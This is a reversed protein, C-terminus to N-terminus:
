WGTADKKAVILNFMSNKLFVRSIFFDGRHRLESSASTQPLKLKPRTRSISFNVSHQPSCGQQEETKGDGLIVHNRSL